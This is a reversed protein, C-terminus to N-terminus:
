SDSHRTGGFQAVLADDYADAAAGLRVILSKISAKSLISLPEEIALMVTDRQLAFTCGHPENANQNLLHEFLRLREAQELPPSLVPSVVRLRHVGNTDVTVFIFVQASGKMLGWSPLADAANLRTEEPVLDLEEIVSEVFRSVQVIPSDDKVIENPM